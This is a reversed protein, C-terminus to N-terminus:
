LDAGSRSVLGTLTGPDAVVDAPAVNRAGTSLVPRLMGILADGMARLAHPLLGLVGAAAPDHRAADPLAIVAPVRAVDSGFVVCIM